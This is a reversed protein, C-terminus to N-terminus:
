SYPLGIIPTLIHVLLFLVVARRLVNCLVDISPPLKRRASPLHRTKERTKQNERTLSLRERIEASGM